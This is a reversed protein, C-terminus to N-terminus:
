GLQKKIELVAKKIAEAVSEEMAEEFKRTRREGDKDPRLKQGTPIVVDPRGTLDRIKKDVDPNDAVTKRRRDAKKAQASAGGLGALYKAASLVVDNNAVDPYAEQFAGSFVKEVDALNQGSKGKTGKVMISMADKLKQGVDPLEPGLFTEVDARIRELLEKASEPTPNGLAEIHADSVGDLRSNDRLDYVNPYIENGFIVAGTNALSKFYGREKVVYSQYDTSIKATREKGVTRDRNQDRDVSIDTPVNVMLVGIKYGLKQLAKIRKTMKPVDEGTTDFLLPRARMILNHTHAQSANQLINRMGQQLKELDADESNAFEMSVGFAPFVDEIRQDPNVTRFGGKAGEDAKPIGVKDSIFSKGAGAPGFLFIAKFSNPNKLISEDLLEDPSELLFGRRLDREKQFEESILEKLEGITLVSNSM